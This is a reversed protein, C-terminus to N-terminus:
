DKGTVKKTVTKKMIAYIDGNLKGYTFLQWLGDTDNKL